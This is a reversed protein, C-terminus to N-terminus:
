LEDRHEQLILIITCTRFCVSCATRNMLNHVHQGYTARGIQLFSSDENQSVVGCGYQSDCGVSLRAAPDCASRPFTRAKTNVQIPCGEWGSSRGSKLTIGSTAATHGMMNSCWSEWCRQNLDEKKATPLKQALKPEQRVDRRSSHDTTQPLEHVGHM